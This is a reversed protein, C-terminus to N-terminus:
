IFRSNIFRAVIQAVLLRGNPYKFHHTDARFSSPSSDENFMQWDLEQYIGIYQTAGDFLIPNEVTEGVLKVNAETLKLIIHTSDVVSIIDYKKIL